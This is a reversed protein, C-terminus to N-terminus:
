GEEGNQNYTNQTRNTNLESLRAESIPIPLDTINMNGFHKNSSANAETTLQAPRQLM